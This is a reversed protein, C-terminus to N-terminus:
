ETGGLVPHLPVNGEPLGIATALERLSHYFSAIVPLRRGSLHRRCRQDFRRCAPLLGSPRWQASRFKRGLRRVVTTRAGASRCRQSTIISLVTDSAGCGCSSIPPLAVRQSPRQSAPISRPPTSAFSRHFSERCAPLFRAPPPFAINSVYCYRGSASAHSSRCHIPQQM